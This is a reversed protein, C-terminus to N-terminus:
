PLGLQARLQLIGARENPGLLNIQEPTMTLVSRIMAKQDEPLAEFAPPLQIPPPQVPVFPQPPNNYIPYSTAVPPPTPQHPPAVAVPVPAPASTPAGALQQAALTAQLTEPKIAGMRHMLEALGFAIQPQSNLIARAQDPTTKKLQLLLEILQDEPMVSAM